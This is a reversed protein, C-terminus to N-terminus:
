KNVSSRVSSRVSEGAVRVQWEGKVQCEGKNVQGGRGVSSGLLEEVGAVGVVLMSGLWPGVVRCHLATRFAVAM